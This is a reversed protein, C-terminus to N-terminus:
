WRSRLNKYLVVDALVLLPNLLIAIIAPIITSSYTTLRALLDTNLGAVASIIMGTLYSAIWMLLVGVILFLLKPLAIRLLVSWFKDKTMKKSVELAKPGRKGELVVEYPAFIYFVSWRLSLIFAVLVGAILLFNSTGILVGSGLMGGLYGILVPPVIGIAIAGLIVLIVLIAVYVSPLFLKWSEKLVSKVDISRRNVQAYAAKTLAIFIWLGLVPGLFITSFGYLLTGFSEWGSLLAGTSLTTVSPYFLLAIIQVILILILWGAINLYTTFRIRYFDWASDIIEGISILKAM